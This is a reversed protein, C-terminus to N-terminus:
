LRRVCQSARYASSHVTIADTFLSRAATLDACDAIADALRNHRRDLWVACLHVRRQFCWQAIRRVVPISDAGAAGARGSNAAVVAATNDCMVIIVRDHWAEGLQLLAAEIALLERATSSFDIEQPLLMRWAMHAATHAGVASAGADSMFTAFSVRETDLFVADGDWARRTGHQLWFHLDERALVTLKVVRQQRHGLSALSVTFARSGPVAASAWALLGSLHRLTATPCAAPTALCQAALARIQAVRASPLRVAQRTIDLLFGLWKVVPAAPTVKDMNVQVGLRQCLDLFDEVMADVAAVTPATFLWDDIYVYFDGKDHGRAVLLDTLLDALMASMCCFASGGSNLGFLVVQPAVYEVGVGTRSPVAFALHQGVGAAYPIHTYGAQLDATRAVYGPKCRSTAHELDPLRIPWPTSVANLGSTRYDYVCRWETTEEMVPVACNPDLFWLDPALQAATSFTKHKPVAFARAAARPKHELYTAKGQAVLKSVASSIAAVQIRPPRSTSPTFAPIEDFFHPQWGFEFVDFLFQAPCNADFHYGRLQARLCQECTDRHCRRWEGVNLTSPVPTRGHQLPYAAMLGRWDTSLPAVRGTHRGAVALRSLQTNLLHRRALQLGHVSTVRAPLDPFIDTLPATAEEMRWLLPSIYATRSRVEDPLTGAATPTAGATRAGANGCTTLPPVTAGAAAGGRRAERTVPPQGRAGAVVGAPGAAVTHAM